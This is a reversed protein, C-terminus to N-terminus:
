EELASHDFRRRRFRERKDFRFVSVVLTGAFDFWEFRQGFDVVFALWLLRRSFSQRGALNFWFRSQWLRGFPLADSILNVQAPKV